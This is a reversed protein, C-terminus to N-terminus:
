RESKWFKHESDIFVMYFTNKIIHGVIIILGTIHIRAWNADEPIHNPHFFDTKDKPPFDGYIAFKKGDVQELLPSACYGKLTDMIQYLYHQNDADKFSAASDQTSDFHELSVVFNDKEGEDLISKRKELTLKIISKREHKKLRRKAM